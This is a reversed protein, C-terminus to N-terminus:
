FRGFDYSQSNKKVIKRKKAIKELGDTVSSFRSRASDDLWNIPSQQKMQQVKELQSRRNRFLKQKALDMENPRLVFEPWLPILARDCFSILQELQEAYRVDWLHDINEVLVIMPRRPDVEPILNEPKSKGFSFVHADLGFRWIAMLAICWTYGPGKQDESKSLMRGKCTLSNGGQSWNKLRNIVDTADQGPIELKLNNAFEQSDKKKVNGDYNWLNHFKVLTKRVKQVRYRLDCAKICNDQAVQIHGTANCCSFDKPNLDLQSGDYKLGPLAGNLLPHSLSDLMCSSSKPDSFVPTPKM